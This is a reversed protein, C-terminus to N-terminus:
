AEPGQAHVRIADEIEVQFIKVFDSVGLDEKGLLAPADVWKWIEAEPWTMWWRVSRGTDDNSRNESSSGAGVEKFLILECNPGAVGQLRLTEPEP